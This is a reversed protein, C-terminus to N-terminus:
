ELFAVAYIHRVREWTWADGEWPWEYIGTFIISAHVSAVVFAGLAISSWTRRLAQQVLWALPLALLAGHEIFGRFGFSGGLWWCWWFAYTLWAIGWISLVTRAEHVKQWAMVVLAAMVVLMLPSYIFWGNQHSFLVDFGHFDSWNFGEHKKGYTFLVWSGTIRHWYWLQPWWILLVALLAAAVTIRNRTWARMREVMDPWSVAGALLPFLLVPANMPRVLVILAGCVALAVVRARTAHMLLRPTLWCLWAFLLFSYVHSYGPEVSSYYLLNTGALLLLATTAAVPDGFRARLLLFVFLLGVACCTAGAVVRAKAYAPEWGTAPSGTLLNWAHVFLFFPAEFVAVGMHQVNLMRGREAPIAYAMSDLDLKAFAAPLFEYYGNADNSNRLAGDWHGANRVWGVQLCTAFAALAVLGGFSWNSRDISGARM